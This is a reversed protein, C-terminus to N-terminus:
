NWEIINGPGREARGFLVELVFGLASSFVFIFLLLRVLGFPYWEM